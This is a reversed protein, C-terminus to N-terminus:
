EPSVSIKGRVERGRRLEVAKPQINGEARSTLVIRTKEAQILSSIKELLAITGPTIREPDTETSGEPLKETVKGIKPSNVYNASINESDTCRPQKKQPHRLLM